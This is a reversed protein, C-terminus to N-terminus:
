FGAYGRLRGAGYGGGRGDSLCGSKGGGFFGYKNFLDYFLNEFRRAAGRKVLGM